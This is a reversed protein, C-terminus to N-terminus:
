ISDPIFAFDAKNRYVAKVVMNMFAAYLFAIYYGPYLGHWLASIFFTYYEAYM